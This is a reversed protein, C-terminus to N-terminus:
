RKQWDVGAGIRMWAIELICYERLTCRQIKRRQEIVGLVIKIAILDIDWFNIKLKNDNGM